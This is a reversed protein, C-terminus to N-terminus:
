VTPKYLYAAGIIPGISHKYTSALTETGNWPDAVRWDGFLTKSWAWMWHTKGTAANGVEVIVYQNPNKIAAQINAPYYGFERKILKLGPLNEWILEGQSTYLNPWQALEGPNKYIGLFDMIMSLHTTLCGASGVTECSLGLHVGSWLPNRQCLIVPFAM